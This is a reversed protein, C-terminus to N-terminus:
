ADNSAATRIPELIGAPDAPALADFLRLVRRVIGHAQTITRAAHFLTSAETLPSTGNVLAQGCLALAKTDLAHYNDSIQEILTGASRAAGTFARSAADREAQRALVIGSILSLDAAAPPYGDACAAQATQLAADLEGAHLYM